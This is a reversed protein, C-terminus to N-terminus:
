VKTITVEVLGKRSDSIRAFASKCLDISRGYKKFGGRDLIVVEVCKGSDVACARVKEGLKFDNSAAFLTGKAELDYLGKGSATPCGKYNNTKPGCADKSSYWSATEAICNGPISLIIIFVWFIIRKM